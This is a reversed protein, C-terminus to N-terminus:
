RATNLETVGSTGPDPNTPISRGPPTSVANSPQSSAEELWIRPVLYKTEYRECRENVCWVEAVVNIEGRMAHTCLGCFPNGLVYTWAGSM